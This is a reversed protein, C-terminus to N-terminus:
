PRFRARWAQQMFTESWAASLPCACSSATSQWGLHPDSSLLRCSPSRWETAQRELLISQRELIDPLSGSSEGAAVMARYLPPFSRPERALADALRRGEVVGDAVRSVIGRVEPRDSQRAITRLSEELPSVQSLTALQRTFLTLDRFRLRDGRRWPLTLGNPASAPAGSDQAEALRIVHLRRRTLQAQAEERTPASLRGQQERGRPDIAVYAFSPL